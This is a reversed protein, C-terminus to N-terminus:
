LQVYPVDRGVGGVNRTGQSTNKPLPKRHNLFLKDLQEAYYRKNCNNLLLNALFEERVKNAAEDWQKDTAYLDLRAEFLKSEVCAQCYRPEGGLHEFVKVKNMFIEELHVTNTM